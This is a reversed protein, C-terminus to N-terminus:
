AVQLLITWSAQTFLRVITNQAHQLLTEPGRNRHGVLMRRLTWQLFSTALLVVSEHAHAHTPSIRASNQPGCLTSPMTFTSWSRRVQLLLLAGKYFAEFDQVRSGLARAQHESTGQCVQQSVACGRSVHRTLAFLIGTGLAQAAAMVTLQVVAKLRVLKRLHHGSDM